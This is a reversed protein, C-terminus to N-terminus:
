AQTACLAAVFDKWGQRDKALKEITSWSYNLGRLRKEVTRRWTTKPRGRSRKGEPTWHMAIRAINNSAKRMVHGIWRWRRRNVLTRIDEQKTQRLLQDNSIKQPWFIRLIKRLNATHFSALKSLDQETMRWCESGYLLTSLVCSQYIRLKTKTSYSASRWVSRLSMFANRAKNLRSQIDVSTGGDQCLVSGLYTFKNTYPIDQGRVRIKTPSPINVCMAETKKLSIRLGVQNSFMSLRDTKEQIHQRTHSLLALDDAFDLDELITFPTWRIGRRQDEMTRCLVWDIAINFLMSSMVCGQRVGTKVEFSLDRQGTCCTFNSYFCKIINIIRQPIGYARLIQWLSDRHISDFAKEYDIFNIYLERNWETCQELINRLTFINDTCGRRKCFGSQENWLLDDVAQTIRQIIIKCFIKSPVSLLTIGQWNNCDSLSWKKSIKVILGRSWDIPIEEQEWIKTFLSTIIPAALEPDAKFLEANLNDHGPAKGNKLSNIAQIIERRTPVDTSIDLNTAAEQINLVVIPQPRNLLERFHETWHRQQERESTLLIGNKDKVLVKTAHCKGTIIKTVKYVTGQENCVAAEEAQSALNEIYKRKDARTRRKVEKNAARYMDQHREKLQQSKSDMVKKKLRRRSEIAKWTDSLMWEKPRRQRCGLCTKSSDNNAITIREWNKNMGEDNIDERGDLEVLAEFRNCVELILPNRVNPHKLQSVDFRSRRKTLRGASKLKMIKIKIQWKENILLHDIQNRDRGGIVLNNTTCFEVLREGNEDIIGSGYGGMVRDSGSNDAGVKADLDWIIIILDQMPVQEIEAQLRLYFNYKVDDESDNTPAYCQILTLNNQKGKLRAKILLSNIPKWKLLSRDAGKKLITALGVRHLEDDWGSYLVREGSATKLRGTGIWRSESIGLVHLNYQRRETTVQVLKGTEYMTRVNWFGIRTKTKASMVELKM